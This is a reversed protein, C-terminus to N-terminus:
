AILAEPESAVKDERARGARTISVSYVQKAGANKSVWLQHTNPHVFCAKVV